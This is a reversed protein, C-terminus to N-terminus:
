MVGQFRVGACMRDSLYEQCMNVSRSGIDCLADCRHYVAKKGFRQGGIDQYDALEERMRQMGFSVGEEGVLGMCCDVVKIVEM